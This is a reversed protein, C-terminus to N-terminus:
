YLRANTNSDHNGFTPTAHKEVVNQAVALAM